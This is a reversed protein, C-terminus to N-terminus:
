IFWKERRDLVAQKVTQGSDQFMHIREVNNCLLTREPYLLIRPNSLRADEAKTKATHLRQIVESEKEKSIKSGKFREDLGKIVPFVKTGIGPTKPPEMPPIGQGGSSSKTHTTALRAYIGNMEEESAPSRAIKNMGPYKQDKGGKSAITGTTHLRDVIDALRGEDVPDKSIIDRAEMPKYSM